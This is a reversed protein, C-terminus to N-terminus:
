EQLFERPVYLTVIMLLLPPKKEISTEAERM